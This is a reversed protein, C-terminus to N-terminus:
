ADVGWVVVSVQKDSIKPYPSPYRALRIKKGKPPTVEGRMISPYPYYPLLDLQEFLKQLPEWIKIGVNWKLTDFKYLILILMTAATCMLTAVIISLIDPTRFLMFFYVTALYLFFTTLWEARSVREKILSEMQYRKEQEAPLLDIIQERTTAHRDTKTSLNICYKELETYREDTCQFDELKYDFQSILYEDILKHITEFQKKPLTQALMYISYLASGESRGIEFYNNYRSRQNSISFGIFISFLLTSATFLAVQNDDLGKGPFVLRLILFISTVVIFQYVLRVNTIRAILLQM